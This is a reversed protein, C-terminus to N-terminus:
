AEELDDIFVSAIMLDNILIQKQEAGLNSLYDVAKSTYPIPLGASADSGASVDLYTTDTNTQDLIDDGPVHHRAFARGHVPFSCSKGQTLTRSMIRPAVEIQKEFAALVEGGFVRLFLENDTAFTGTWTNDNPNGAYGYDTINTM